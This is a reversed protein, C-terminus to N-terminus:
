YCISIVLKAVVKALWNVLPKLPALATSICNLKTEM